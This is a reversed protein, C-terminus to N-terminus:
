HMLLVFATWNNRGNQISCETHRGHIIHVQDMQKEACRVWDWLLNSLSSGMSETDDRYNNDKWNQVLYYDTFTLDLSPRMNPLLIQDCETVTLSPLTLFANNQLKECQLKWQWEGNLAYRIQCSKNIIYYKYKGISDNLPCNTWTVRDTNWFCNDHSLWSVHYRSSNPIPTCAQEWTMRQQVIRLNFRQMWTMDHIVIRDLLKQNLMCVSLLDAFFEM